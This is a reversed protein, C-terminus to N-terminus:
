RGCRGPRASISTTRSPAARRPGAPGCRKPRRGCAARVGRSLLRGTRPSRRAAARVLGSDIELGTMQPGTLGSALAALYGTCDAPNAPDAPGTLVLRVGAVLTVPASAPAAPVDPAPNGPQTLANDVQSM